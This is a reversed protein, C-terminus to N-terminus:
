MSGGENVVASARPSNAARLYRIRGSPKPGVGKFWLAAQGAAGSWKVRRPVQQVLGALRVSVGATM